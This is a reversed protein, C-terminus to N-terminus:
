EAKLYEMFVWGRKNNYEVYGWGYDNPGKAESDDVFLVDIMTGNPIRGIQDSNRDAALRMNLDADSGTDVKYRGTGNIAPAPSNAPNSGSGLENIVSGVSNGENSSPIEKEKNVRVGHVILCFIVLVLVIAATIMLLLRKDMKKIKAVAEGIFKMVSDLIGQVNSKKAM